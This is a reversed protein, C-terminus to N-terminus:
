FEQILHFPKVTVSNINVIEINM